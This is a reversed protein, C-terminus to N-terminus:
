IPVAVDDASEGPQFGNRKFHQFFNPLPCALCGRKAIQAFSVSRARLAPARFDMVLGRLIYCRWDAIDATLIHLVNCCTIPVFGKPAARVFLLARVSLIVIM